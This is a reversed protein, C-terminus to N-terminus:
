RRAVNARLTGDREGDGFPQLEFEAALDLEFGIQPLAAQQAGGIGELRLDEVDLLGVERQEDQPRPDPVGSGSSWNLRGSPLPYAEPM